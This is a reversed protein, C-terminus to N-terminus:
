ISISVVRAAGDWNVKAGLAESVFRLPVMTTGASVYPAESLSVTSNNVLADSSGVTLNIVKNSRVATITKTSGDWNVKAGLAEFVDRMPVMTTGNLIVPNSNTVLINDNIFVKIVAPDKEILAQHIIEKADNYSDMNLRPTFNFSGDTNVASSDNIADMYMKVTTDYLGRNSPQGAVKYKKDNERSDYSVIIKRKISGGDKYLFEHDHWPELSYNGAAVIVYGLGDKAKTVEADIKLNSESYKGEDNFDYLKTCNGNILSYIQINTTGTNGGTKVVLEPINDNDMDFIKIKDIGYQNDLRDIIADYEKIEELDAGDFVTSAYAVTSFLIASALVTCILRKM